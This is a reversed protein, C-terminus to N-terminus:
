QPTAGRLDNHAACQAIADVETLNTAIIKAPFTGMTPPATIELILFGGGDHQRARVWAGIVSASNDRLAPKMTEEEEVGRRQGM